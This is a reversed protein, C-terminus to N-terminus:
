WKLASVHTLLLASMWRCVDLQRILGTGIRVNWCGELQGKMTVRHSREEQASTMKYFTCWCGSLRSGRFGQGDVLRDRPVM